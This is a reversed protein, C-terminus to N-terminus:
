VKDLHYAVIVENALATHWFYLKIQEGNMKFQVGEKAKLEVVGNLFVPTILYPGTWKSKLKGPLCPSGSSDVLVLDGVRFEQKATKRENEKKMNEKHSIASVSQLEGSQRM